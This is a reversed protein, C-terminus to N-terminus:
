APPDLRLRASLKNWGRAADWMDSNALRIAYASGAALAGSADPLALHLAYTGTTSPATVRVSFTRSSGAAVTRLDIPLRVKRTGAANHLGLYVPRPRVLPAYGTNAFTLQLSLAGGARATTPLSATTLRLRHGLRAKARALGDTGWSTLVDPSYDANLYTWHYAALEASATPWQSRPANVTCTEGGMLVTRTQAALWTRDADGAPFTGYDDVSALFCDNHIGVRRARPDTAPVLRQKIGPYRVQVPIRASVRGLLANLVRGRAAWNADTLAWPRSPDSAYHDTYYWEGWQGIFGAQLAFITGAHRNLVPALQAIHGEVRAPPADASSTESYAFRVILKVGAAEATRLDTEVKPLFAADLLDRTAYKELYFIRYVLTVGEATRWRSLQAGDLPTYGSGDARFHTGTYHYFGREPNTVATTAPLAPYTHLTHAQAVDAGGAITAVTLLALSVALAVAAQRLGRVDCGM